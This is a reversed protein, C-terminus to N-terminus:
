ELGYKIMFDCEDQIMDHVIMILLSNAADLPHDRGVNSPDLLINDYEDLNLHAVDNRYKMYVYDIFYGYKKNISDPFHTRTLENAPILREVRKPTHGRAKLAKNNENRITKIMHDAIKHLCLFRYYTNTSNIAERFVHLYPRISRPTTAAILIDEEDLDVPLYPITTRIQLLQGSESHYIEVSRVQLPIRKKFCISDLIASALEKALRLAKELNQEPSVIVLRRILGNHSKLTAKAQEYIESNTSQSIRVYPLAMPIDIDCKLVSFGATIDMKNLNMSYIMFESSLVYDIRFPGLYANPNEKATFVPEITIKHGQLAPPYELRALMEDIKGAKIVIEYRDLQGEGFYTADGSNDEKYEDQTM